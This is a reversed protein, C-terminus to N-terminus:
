FIWGFLRSWLSQQETRALIGEGTYHISSDSLRWSDITNDYAIDVTRVRGAVVISQTEQNLVIEQSGSVRLDGNPYVEEVLVSVKAILKGHRNVKADGNFDNRTWVSGDAEGGGVGTIDGSAKAALNVSRKTNAGASAQASSSEFVNITLTDGVRLARIDSTLSQYTGEDYVSEAQAYLPMFVLLISSLLQLRAKNM